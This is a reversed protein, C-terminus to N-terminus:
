RYVSVLARFILFMRWITFTWFLASLLRMTWEYRTTQRSRQKQSQLNADFDSFDIVADGSADYPPLPTSPKGNDYDQSTKLTEKWHAHDEPCTNTTANEHSAPPISATNEIRSEVQGVAKGEDKDEVAYSRVLEQTDARSAQFRQFLRYELHQRAFQSYM